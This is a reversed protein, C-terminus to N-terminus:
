TPITIRFSKMLNEFVSVVDAKNFEKIGSAPDYNAINTSHMYLYANYCYGMFSAAYNETEMLNGAGVDSNDVKYFQVGNVVVPVNTPDSPDVCNPINTKRTIGIFVEGLNTGTSYSSPFIIKTGIAPGLPAYLVPVNPVVTFGSPFNFSVQMSSTDTYPHWVTIKIPKIIPFTIPTPTATPTTSSVPAPTVPTSSGTPTTTATTSPTQPSTVPNTSPTGNNSMQRSLLYGLTIAALALIVAIIIVITFKKDRM